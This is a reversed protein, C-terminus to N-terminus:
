NQVITLTHKLFWCFFNKTPEHFQELDLHFYKIYNGDTQWNTLGCRVVDYSMMLWNTAAICWGIEIGMSDHNPKIIM